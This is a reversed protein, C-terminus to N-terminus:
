KKNLKPIMAQIGKESPGLLGTRGDDKYDINLVEWKDKDAGLIKVTIDATYEKKTAIGKYTMKLILDTRQKTVEKFQYKKLEVDKTTRAAKVIATGIKTAWAKEEKANAPRKKISPVEEDAARVSNGALAALCAVAACLCFMRITKM